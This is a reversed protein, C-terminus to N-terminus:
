NLPFWTQPIVREECTIAQRVKMKVAYGESCLKMQVSRGNGATHNASGNWVDQTGGVIGKCTQVASSCLIVGTMSSPFNLDGFIIRYVCNQKIACNVIYLLYNCLWGYPLFFISPSLFM